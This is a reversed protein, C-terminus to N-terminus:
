YQIGDLTNLLDLISLDYNKPKVGELKHSQARKSNIGKFRFINKNNVVKSVVKDGNRLGCFKYIEKLTETPDTVLNEFQVHMINNIDHNKFQRIVAPLTKRYQRLPGRLGRAWGRNKTSIAVDLPYRIINLIRAEKGFYENWTRCYKGVAGKYGNKAFRPVWYPMKEGWNAKKMNFNIQHQYGRTGQYNNKIHKDPLWTRTLLEHKSFRMLAVEHFM